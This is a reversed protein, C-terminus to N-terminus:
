ESHHGTLPGKGDELCAVLIPEFIYPQFTARQRCQEPTIDEHDHFPCANEINDDTHFSIEVDNPTNEVKEAYAIAVELILEPSLEYLARLKDGVTESGSAEADEVAVSGVWVICSAHLKM